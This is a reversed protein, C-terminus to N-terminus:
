VDAKQSSKNNKSSLTGVTAVRGMAEITHRSKFKIGRIKPDSCLTIRHQDDCLNIEKIFSWPESYKPLQHSNENKTFGFHVRIKKYFSEIM